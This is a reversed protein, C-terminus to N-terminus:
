GPMSKVKLLQGTKCHQVTFNKKNNSTHINLINKTECNEFRKEKVQRKQKTPKLFENLPITPVLGEVVMYICILRKSSRRIEFSLELLHLMGTICGEERTM